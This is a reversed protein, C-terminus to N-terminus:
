RNSLIRYPGVEAVRRGTLPTLRRARREDAVVYVRGPGRFRAQLEAGGIMWARTRPESVTGFELEGLYDVVTIRRELYYALGHLYNGYVAVEDGERLLPRLASAVGKASRLADFRPLPAFLCTLFLASALVLAAIAPRAGSRRQLWHPLAGLALLSAGLLYRHGGLMESYLLGKPSLPLGPYLLAAGVPVFLLALSLTAGRPLSRTEWARALERSALLALPPVAPLIYPILKSDSLSFFLFVTAAWVALFLAEDRGERRERFASVLAQPLFATWPLMGGLLVPGFFWFPATRQHVPTLYREFHEHVFYFRLFDHNAAAALLHWPVAVALFLLLGSPQFALALARWRRTLLIWLLIVGGPIVMGILGKTLTALAAAAFFGWLWLRREWGPPKATANLFSLLGATLLASVPLDLSVVNALGFYLPSTALVGAALLATRRGFRDRGVAYVSALGLFAFLALPLRVGGEGKGFLRISVAETWYFLPPKEFYRVGNIRPTVWDGTTVMERPIEAYRAEDPEWLARRALPPGLLLALGLALLLLDRRRSPARQPRSFPADEM